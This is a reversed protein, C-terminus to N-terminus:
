PVKPKPIDRRRTGEKDVVIQATRTWEQPLKWGSDLGDLNVFNIAIQEPVYNMVPIDVPREGRLVRAALVGAARGVEYYDAGVSFLSGRNVDNPFNTFVPIRSRRAADVVGDFASTVTADGGVWIAEVGRTALAKAGESVAAPSDITVETLEIGLEKCIARGMRTSAESNSESPNWVVGVKKLNPNAERAMRFAKEVPQLTGYGTMWPPHKSRDDRDFGIGAGWPDTSLTFVHTRKTTTNASAVAQLMPTSLSAILDFDKGVVEKAILAATAQDQEANYRTISAGNGDAFGEEALADLLGRQGDELVPSSGYNVVAITRQSSSQSRHRRPDSVLLVSAAGVILSIGLSVRRLNSMMSNVVLVGNEM